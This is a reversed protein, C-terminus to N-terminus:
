PVFGCYDNPAPGCISGSGSVKCDTTWRLVQTRQGRSTEHEM